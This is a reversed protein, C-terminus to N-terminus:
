SIINPSNSFGLFWWPISYGYLVTYAGGFANWSRVRRIGKLGRVLPPSVFV